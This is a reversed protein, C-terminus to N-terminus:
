NEIHFDYSSERKNFIEVLKSSLKKGKPTIQLQRKRKDTSALDRKILELKELRRLSHSVQDKPLTLTKGLDSPTIEGPSEFFLALLILSDNLNCGWKKLDRTLPSFYHHYQQYLGMLSSKNMFEQFKM